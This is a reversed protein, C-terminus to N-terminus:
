VFNKLPEYKPSYILYWEKNLKLWFMGVFKINGGGLTKTWLLNGSADFKALLLNVYGAGYSGTYGTVALGGDSAEIVSFGEDSSSGGLTRTWLTTGSSNFKVLLLDDDGAGFSHTRGTVVFGGDTAEMISYGGDYNTGGLTKVFYQSRVPTSLLLVLGVAILLHLKALKM